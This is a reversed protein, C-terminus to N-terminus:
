GTASLRLRGDVVMAGEGVGHVIIPNLDLEALEPMAEVLAGIRLIVSALAARDAPPAGRFGDLLARAKLRDLMEEVDPASVPTLRFSVDRFLEAQVGGLGAVLLPGMSPNTTVGVLAEFGPRIQKQVVFGELTIGTERMRRAIQVVARDLAAPTEIDLVVGGVETKHLLGAAFGKLVVPYGIEAAAALAADADVATRRIEAAPVGIVGLLEALDQDAVWGGAPFTRRLRAVIARVQQACDPELVSPPVVPRARWRGYDVAASLAIAVNEPFAYSPIAGRPGRSLEAPTGRASMYVTAIPKDPPMAAAARAIARAVEEPRTVVPPVYIAVVADVADDAAVAAIVQEYAEPPASAIMDIPNSLGAQPPLIARLRAQTAPSLPPLRLGRAECADALLIGPGGANTVVCVQPGKPVPQSSLLAVVDFLEELTSTRIVGAQAFLADVGVDMSALAASHSVAARTGAASRGSKVAVIPKTRAVAPALRAFKRANGFSELYLAVVKTRPDDQWYSLLDNGSVDAKNGVSIFDAIGINLKEAHDLMAMGLSGSQTLMSVHGAPPFVPSFTANLLVGAHTSLVGMCNPGVLRMGSGRAVERMHQEVGRGEQSAEAFGSSIVVVGRTGSRACDEIVAPVASAPVAVIALDVPAGIMSVKPVCPRGSIELAMPNVPYIAGRFGSRIINDLVVRGISGEERSAGVVAVSHPEFFARISEGLARRERELSARLFRDTERVPFVVHFVDGDLAHKVEFGSEGFVGLMKGNEALVEARFRDVGQGRAICALHELLVTGIGRGQERDAVEFAVEAQGEDSPGMLIYRGVGMLREEGGSSSVAVLAVHTTFDVDTLYVLEKESLRRKVAMFRLRVSRPSLREFLDVLLSRDSSRIARILISQGDRLVAERSYQEIDHVKM